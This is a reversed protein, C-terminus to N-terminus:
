SVTGTSVESSSLDPPPGFHQVKSSRLYRASERLLARKGGNAYVTNGTTSSVTVAVPLEGVAIEIPPSALAQNTLALSVLSLATLM